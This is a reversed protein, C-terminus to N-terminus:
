DPTGSEKDSNQEREQELEYVERALARVLPDYLHARVLAIDEELSKRFHLYFMYQLALLGNYYRVREAKGTPLSEGMFDPLFSPHPLFAALQYSPEEPLYPQGEEDQEHIVQLAFAYGEFHLGGSETLDITHTEGSPHSLHQSLAEIAEDAQEDVLLDNFLEFACEFELTYIEGDVLDGYIGMLFVHDNDPTLIIASVALYTTFIHSSKPRVM